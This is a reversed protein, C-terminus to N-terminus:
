NALAKLRTNLVLYGPELGHELGTSPVKKCFMFGFGPYKYKLEWNDGALVM